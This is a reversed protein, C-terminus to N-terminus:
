TLSEDISLGEKDLFREEKELRITYAKM